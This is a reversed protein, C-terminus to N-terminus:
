GSYPPQPSYPQPPGPPQQGQPPYPAQYYPHPQQGQPMMVVLTSPRGPTWARVGPTLLLIFILLALAFRAAGWALIPTRPDPEGPLVPFLALATYDLVTYTAFVPAAVSTWVIGFVRSGAKGKALGPATIVACVLFVAFTAMVVGVQPFDGLLLVEFFGIDGYLHPHDMWTLVMDVTFYGMLAAMAWVATVALTAAGPRSAPREPGAAGPQPYGPSAQQQPPQPPVPQYQLHMRDPPPPPYSM